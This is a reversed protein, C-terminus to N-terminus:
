TELAKLPSRQESRLQPHPLFQGLRLLEGRTGPRDHLIERGSTEILSIHTGGRECADDLISTAPLSRGELLKPSRSTVIVQLRRSADHLADFLVRAAAPHLTAEPREMGALAHAAAPALGSQFLAILVGFARLTGSSTNLAHFRWRNPVEIVDQRFAITDIPRLQVCGARRMRRVIKSPLEELRQKAEPEKRAMRALVGAGPPQPTGIQVPSLNYFGMQSLADYIPRFQPLGAANVLYLRDRAAPPTVSATIAAVTGEDVVYNDVGAASRLWCQEKKVVYGGDPQSGIEFSYFGSQSDSFDFDLRISFNKPHGTSRRRVENIGGRGRIAHDLSNRLGDSVFRIADLFNSKGAGNPGVLVALAPLGVDCYGISKYNKLRVRTIFPPPM